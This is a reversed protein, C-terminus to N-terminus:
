RMRAGLLRRLARRPAVSAVSAIVKYAPNPVEVADNRALAALGARAVGDVDLLLRDPIPLDGGTVMPTRTFGPCLASVHVGSRRVEEHVAETFALMWAKCASYTANGAIPLFGAVSAVNLIGGHRERIMRQLAAHVLRQVANVHLAVMDAERDLDAQAFRGVAGTGANNVLCDVPREDDQLRRAVRALDDPDRLDAVVVEVDPAGRRRLQSALEELLEARRAVLVLATGQEALHRAVAHGIGSSAGTVLARTWMPM